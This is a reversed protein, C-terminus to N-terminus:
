EGIEWSLGAGAYVDLYRNFIGYGVGIQLSPKPIIRDWFTKGKEVTKTIEPYTLDIRNFSFYSNPHIPIPSTFDVNLSVKTNKNDKHTFTTEAKAVYNIPKNLLDLSDKYKSQWFLKAENWLSDINAEVYVPYPYPEIVFIPEVKTTDEIVPVSIQTSDEGVTVCKIGIIYRDIVAGLILGTVFILLASFFSKIEM